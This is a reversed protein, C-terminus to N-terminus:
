HRKLNARAPLTSVRDHFHCTPVIRARECRLKAKAARILAAISLVCNGRTAMMKGRLAINRTQLKAASTMAKQTAVAQPAVTAACSMRLGLIAEM